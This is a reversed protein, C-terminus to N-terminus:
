GKRRSPRHPVLWGREAFSTYGAGGIVLHDLVQVGLLEGARVLRRTVEHDEPSPEADGSPHNHALLIAAASERLAPAFVERPHVLSQNLSGRSVEVEAILRQRSDVLLALFLEQRLPRLRPALHRHVQDPGALRTGPALESRALRAGLELAARLSGLKARGLGPTALLEADGARVLGALSGFRELLQRALQPASMGRSGTRLVLALLEAEALAHVGHRALRERPLEVGRM